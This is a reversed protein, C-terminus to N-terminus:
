SCRYSSASHPDGRDYTAQQPYPCIPQAIRVPVSAPTSIDIRDPAIGHEVWDVLLKYFDVPQPPHANPNATGNHPGHGNGPVMYLRYFSRVQDLGGMRDVVCNCYRITDQVPILEDKLSQDCTLPKTAASTQGTASLGTLLLAAGVLSEGRDMRARGLSAPRCMVYRGRTNGHNMMDGTARAKLPRETCKRLKVPVRERM